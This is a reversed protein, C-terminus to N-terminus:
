IRDPYQASFMKNKLKERCVDCLKPKPGGNKLFEEFKCKCNDCMVSKQKGIGSFDIKKGPPIGKFTPM